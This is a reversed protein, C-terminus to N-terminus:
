SVSQLKRPADEDTTRPTAQDLEARAAATARALEVLRARVEAAQDAIRLLEDALERSM